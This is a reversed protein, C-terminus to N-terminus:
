QGARVLRVNYGAIRVNFSVIGNGFYVNWANSGASAIPSASWFASASTAPFATPDIAPSSNNNDVISSLEKVNPLRWAIGTSVAQAAALQLAAEHTFTGATGTCTGRSVIMGEACRRWILSTQNYTVEQGDASVTYRPVIESQGARVLRVYFINARSTTNNVSGFNFAVIFVNMPAGIVPTVSWYAGGQTNPLWNADITPGPNAIGYDVISQLEDATPLRWDSYGCLNTANVAAVYGTADTATGYLGSPDYTASYNTYTKTWDRLGGDTTKVEWMLGTVNDQVCGGTVATYSFGLKGDTNLNTAADADRGAMGDQADNLAIAGASNCAVFVDSGAQYCRGATIGTDNIPPPVRTTFTWTYPSAIANGAADKVGTTITATYTTSYALNNTPTFTATTGSYAVTGTVGHDLTFDAATVTSATMAESFTATITANVAIGTANDVPSTSSVTPSTTDPPTGGGGSSGCAAIGFLMLLAPIILRYRTNMATEGKSKSQANNMMTKM